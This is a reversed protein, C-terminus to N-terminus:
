TRDPQPTLTYGLEALAKLVSGVLEPRASQDPRIEKLNVGTRLFVRTNILGRLADNPVLDRFTDRVDGLTDLHTDSPPM